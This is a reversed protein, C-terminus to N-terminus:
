DEEQTGRQAEDRLERIAAEAEDIGRHVRTSVGNQDESEQLMPPSLAQYVMANFEIGVRGLINTVCKPCRYVTRKALSKRSQSDFTRQLPMNTTVM